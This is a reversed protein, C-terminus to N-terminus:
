QAHPPAQARLYRLCAQVIGQPVPTEPASPVAGAECALLREVEAILTPADTRLDKLFANRRPWDLERATRVLPAAATTVFSTAPM